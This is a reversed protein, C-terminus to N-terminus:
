LAEPLLQDCQSRDKPLFTVRPPARRSLARKDGQRGGGWATCERGGAWTPVRTPSHLPVPAPSVQPVRSLPPLAAAPGWTGSYGVHRQLPVPVGCPGQWWWWGWGGGGRGVQGATAPARARHKPFSVQLLCNARFSSPCLNLQTKHTCVARPAGNEAGWVRLPVFM